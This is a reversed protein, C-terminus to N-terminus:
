ARRHFRCEGRPIVGSGCETVLFLSFCILGTIRTWLWQHWSSLHIEPSRVALLLVPASLLLIGGGSQWLPDGLSEVIVDM